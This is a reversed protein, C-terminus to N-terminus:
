KGMVAEVRRYEARGVVTDYSAIPRSEGYGGAKIRDKQVGAAVLANVASTARRESLKLNYAETGVSDPHAEINAKLKPDAKMVQA